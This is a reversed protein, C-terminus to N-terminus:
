SLPMTIHHAQCWNNPRTCGPFVCGRDRLGLARRQPTTALRTERGLDLVEGGSGLVAPIVRSDCAFLRAEAAPIPIDANLLPPGASGRSNRQAPILDALNMTVTLTPTEGAETPLDAARQTHDLLEAFADGHRQDIPRTDREGDPGPRPKPFRRSSVPM